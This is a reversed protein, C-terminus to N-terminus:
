VCELVCNGATEHLCVVVVGYMHVSYLYMYVYMYPKDTSLITYNIYCVQPIDSQLCAEIM